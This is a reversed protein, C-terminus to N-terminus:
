PFNSLTMDVLEKGHHHNKVKDNLRQRGEEILLMM